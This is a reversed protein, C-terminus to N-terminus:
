LPLLSNPLLELEANEGDFVATFFDLRVDAQPVKEFVPDDIHQDCVLQWLQPLTEAHAVIRSHEANWAVWKGAFEIPVANRSHDTATKTPM